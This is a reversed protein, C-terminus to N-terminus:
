LRPDNAERKKAAAVAIDRIPGDCYPCVAVPAHYRMTFTPLGVLPILPKSSKKWRDQCNECIDGAAQFEFNDARM